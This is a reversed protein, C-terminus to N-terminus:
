EDGEEKSEQSQEFEAVKSALRTLESELQKIYAKALLLEKNVKTLEKDYEGILVEANVEGNM